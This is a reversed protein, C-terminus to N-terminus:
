HTSLKDFLAKWWLEVAIRYAGTVVASASRWVHCWLRATMHGHGDAVVETRTMSIMFDKLDAVLRRLESLRLFLRPSPNQASAAVTACRVVERASTRCQEFTENLRAASPGLGLGRLCDVTEQVADQITVIVFAFASAGLTTDEGPFAAVRSRIGDILYIARTKLLDFADTM